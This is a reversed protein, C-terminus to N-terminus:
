QLLTILELFNFSIAKEKHFVASFIYYTSQFPM